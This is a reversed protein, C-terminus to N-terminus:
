STAMNPDPHRNTHDVFQELQHIFWAAAEQLQQPDNLNWIGWITTQKSTLWTAAQDELTAM